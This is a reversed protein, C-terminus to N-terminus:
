AEVAGDVLMQYFVDAANQPDSAEFWFPKTSLVVPCVLHQAVPGEAEYIACALGTRPNFAIEFIGSPKEAVLADFLQLVYADFDCRGTQQDIERLISSNLEAADIPLPDTWYPGTSPASEEGQGRM